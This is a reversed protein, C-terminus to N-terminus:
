DIDFDGVGRMCVYLEVGGAGGDLEVISSKDNLEVNGGRSDLDAGDADDGIEM